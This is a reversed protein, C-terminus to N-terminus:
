DGILSYTYKKKDWFFLHYHENAGGRSELIPEVVGNARCIHTFRERNREFIGNNNHDKTLPEGLDFKGNRNEDM